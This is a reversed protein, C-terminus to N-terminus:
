YPPRLAPFMPFHRVNRTWLEAGLTTVTAAIVYDVPDITGHSRGYRRALACAAGGIAEDVAVWDILGDLAELMVAQHPRAGVHLEVRTMVSAALLRDAIVLSELAATAAPEDRLHDVLVATDLVVTM